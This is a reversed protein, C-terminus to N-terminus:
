KKGRFCCYLVDNKPQTQGKEDICNSVPNPIGGAELCEAKDTTCFGECNSIGKQIDRNKGLVLYTVLFLILLTIAAIVIMNMSLGQAKKM